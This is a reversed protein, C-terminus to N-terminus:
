SSVGEMSRSLQVFEDASVYEFLNLLFKKLTKPNRSKPDQKFFAMFTEAEKFGRSIALNLIRKLVRMAERRRRGAPNFAKSLIELAIEIPSDVLQLDYFDLESTM